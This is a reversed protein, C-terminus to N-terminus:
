FKRNVKELAALFLSSCHDAYPYTIGNVRSGIKEGREQLKVRLEKGHPNYPILGDTSGFRMLIEGANIGDVYKIPDFVTLKKRYKEPNENSKAAVKGTLISDQTCAGLRGGGVISILKEIKTNINGAIRISLVNGLSIGLFNLRRKKKLAEDIRRMSDEYIGTLREITLDPNPQVIDFSSITYIHVKGERPIIRRRMFEVENVIRPTFCYWEMNTQSNEIIEPGWDTMPETYEPRTKKWSYLDDLLGM